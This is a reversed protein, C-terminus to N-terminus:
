GRRAAGVAAALRTARAMWAEIEPRPLAAAEAGRGAIRPLLDTLAAVLARDHATALARLAAETDETELRWFAGYQDSGRGPWVDFMAPWGKMERFELGVTGRREFLKLRVQRWLGGGAVLSTLGVELHRYSGEANVLHQHLKLEDYAAPTSLVPPPALGAAPRPAASAARTAEALLAAPRAVAVRPAGEAAPRPASAMPEPPPVRRPEGAAGAALAISAIEVVAQAAGAHRLGIGIRPATGPPLPLAFDAAPALSRPGVTADGIALTAEVEGPVGDRLLLRLRLLDAPGPDLPPLAVSAEAGPPLDLLLRAPEEGLALLTAVAGTVEAAGLLSHPLPLPLAPVGFSAAWDFHLPLVSWGSGAAMARLALPAAPDAAAASLRADGAVEVVAEAAGAPAPEPLDLSLWGRAQAAPPVQWRGLLRTATRLTVALPAAGPEAVHLAIGCLGEAARGLPQTVPLTAVGAPALDLVLRALPPAIARKLRDREAAAADRAARADRLAAALLPVVRDADPVVRIGHPLIPLLLVAEAESAVLALPVVWRPLPLARAAETGPRALLGDRLELPLLPPWDPLARGPALVICPAGAEIEALEAVGIRLGIV